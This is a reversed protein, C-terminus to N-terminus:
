KPPQKAIVMKSIKAYTAAPLIKKTKLETKAKYPRGDIIKQAYADGIGPLAQLQEKTASNIDILEVPAAQTKKAAKPAQGAAGGAQVTAKATVPAAQSAVSPLAFAVVLAAAAALSVLSRRM